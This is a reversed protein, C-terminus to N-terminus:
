YTLYANIFYANTPKNLYANTPKNLYTNTPKNQYANLYLSDNPQHTDGSSKPLNGSPAKPLISSMAIM